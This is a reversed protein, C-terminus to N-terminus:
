TKDTYISWPPWFEDKLFGFVTETQKRLSIKCIHCFAEGAWVTETLFPFLASPSIKGAKGMALSFWLIIRIKEIHSDPYDTRWWEVCLLHICVEWKSYKSHHPGHSLPFSIHHTVKYSIWSWKCTVQCSKSCWLPLHQIETKVQWSFNCNNLMTLWPLSLTASDYSSSLKM